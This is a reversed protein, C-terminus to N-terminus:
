PQLSLNVFSFPAWPGNYDFVYQGPFTEAVQHVRREFQPVAEDPVLLVLDTVTKEGKPANVKVDAATPRLLEVLRETLRTREAALREEFLRGLELKEAQTPTGSRGFVRDRADALEHDEGVFYEFINGVDWRVRLGMEVKGDLRGLEELIARRQKKLVRQLEAAGKAVQGFSMPIILGRFSKIVANHAELNKRTPMVSAGRPPGDSVVAGVDGVAIVRAEGREGDHEVGPLGLARDEAARVLGYVFLSKRTM